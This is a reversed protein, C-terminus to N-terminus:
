FPAIFSCVDFTKNDCFKGTCAVSVVYRNAGFDVSGQEESIPATTTCNTARAGVPTSGNFKVVDECEIQLDDCYDGRCRAGSMVGPRSADITGPIHFQCWGENPEPGNSQIPANAGEESFWRIVTLTSPNLTMGNPFTECLLRVDDCFKGRCGFGVAGENWKACYTWPGGGEESVWPTWYLAADASPEASITVLAVAAVAFVNRLM